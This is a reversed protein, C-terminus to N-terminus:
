CTSYGWEYAFLISQSFPGRTAREFEFEDAERDTSTVGPGAGLFAAM